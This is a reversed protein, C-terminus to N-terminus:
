DYSFRAASIWLFILGIFKTCVAKYMEAQTHATSLAKLDFVSPLRQMLNNQEFVFNLFAGM